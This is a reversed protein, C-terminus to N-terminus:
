PAAETVENAHRALFWWRGEDWLWVNTYRRRVRKGGDHRRKGAVSDASPQVLEHGAVIGVGKVLTVSEVTREFQDHGIGRNRWLTLVQARPWVEGEPANVTFSPHMMWDLADADRTRAAALQAADAARLGAEDRQTPFAAPQRAHVRAPPPTTSM